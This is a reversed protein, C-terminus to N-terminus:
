LVLVFWMDGILMVLVFIDVLMFLDVCLFVIGMGFVVFCFMLEIKCGLYVGIGVIKM